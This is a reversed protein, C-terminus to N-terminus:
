EKSEIPTPEIDMAGNETIRMKKLEPMNDDGDSMENNAENEKTDEDKVIKAFSVEM